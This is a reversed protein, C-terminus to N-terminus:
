ARKSFNKAFDNYARVYPNEQCFGSAVDGYFKHTFEDDSLTQVVCEYINNSRKKLYLDNCDGNQYMFIISLDYDNIKSLDEHNNEFRQNFFDEGMPMSWLGQEVWPFVDKVTHPYNSDVFSGFTKKNKALRVLEKGIKVSKEYIDSM